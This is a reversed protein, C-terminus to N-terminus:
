CKVMLLVLTICLMLMVGTTICLRRITLWVKSLIERWNLRFLVASTVARSM